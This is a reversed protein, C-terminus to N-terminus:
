YAASYGPAMQVKKLAAYKDLGDMMKQAILGPPVPKEAAGAPADQLSSVPTSDTRSSASAYQSASGAASPGNKATPVPAVRSMSYDALNKGTESARHSTKAALAPFDHKLSTSLMALQANQDEPAGTAPAASAPTGSASALTTSAAPAGPADNWIIDSDKVTNQAVMTDTAAPKDKHGTLMAVVNEGIDKGTKKESIVNAVGVAAGIPGGYLTDGAIRAVPNMHHGTVNEYITSIIPLHELPNIIDFITVLFDLFGHHGKSATDTTGAAKATSSSPDAGGTQGQAQAVLKSFHDAEAAKKEGVVPMYGATRQETQGTSSASYIQPDIM